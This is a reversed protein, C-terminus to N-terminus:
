VNDVSATASSVVSNNDLNKVVLSYTKCSGAPVGGATVIYEGNNLLAEAIENLSSGTSVLGPCSGATTSQYLFLGYRGLYFNPKDSFSATLTFPLAGSTPM